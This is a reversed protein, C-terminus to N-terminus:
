YQIFDDLRVVDPARNGILEVSRDRVGQTDSECFQDVGVPDEDRAVHPGGADFEDLLEGAAHHLLTEVDDVETERRGVHHVVGGAHQVGGTRHERGGVVRGLVVTHLETQGARLRDADVATQGLHPRRRGGHEVADAWPRRLPGASAAATVDQGVEDLVHQREDVDVGQDRHPDDGVRGVAHTAEDNRRHELTERHDFELHHVALEVARERVM